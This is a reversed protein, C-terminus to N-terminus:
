KYTNKFTGTDGRSVVVMLHLIKSNQVCSAEYTQVTTSFKGEKKVDKEERLIQEKPQRKLSIM